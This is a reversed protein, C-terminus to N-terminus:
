TFGGGDDFRCACPHSAQPFHFGDVPPTLAFRLLAVGACLTAVAGSVLGLCFLEM